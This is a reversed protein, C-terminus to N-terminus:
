LFKVWEHLPMGFFDSVRGSLIYGHRSYFRM